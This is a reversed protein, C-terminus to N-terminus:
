NLKPFKNVLLTYIDALLGTPMSDSSNWSGDEARTWDYQYDLHDTGGTVNLLEILGDSGNFCSINVGESGNRGM